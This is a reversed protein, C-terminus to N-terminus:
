LVFIKMYKSFILFDHVNDWRMGLCRIVHIIILTNQYCERIHSMWYTMRLQRMVEFINRLGAMGGGTAHCFSSWVCACVSSVPVVGEDAWTTTAIFNFNAISVWVRTSNRSWKLRLKLDNYAFYKNECSKRNQKLFFGCFIVRDVSRISYVFCYM